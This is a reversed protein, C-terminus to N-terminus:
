FYFFVESFVPVPRIGIEDPFLFAHCTACVPEEFSPGYYGNCIYCALTSFQFEPCNIEVPDLLEDDNPYLCCDLKEPKEHNDFGRTDEINDGAMIM